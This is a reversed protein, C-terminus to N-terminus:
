GKSWKAMIAAFKDKNTVRAVGGLTWGGKQGIDKNVRVEAGVAGDKVLLGATATDIAQEDVIQEVQTILSPPKQESM